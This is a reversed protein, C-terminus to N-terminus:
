RGTDQAPLESQLEQSLKVYLGHFDAGWTVSIFPTRTSTGAPVFPRRVDNNRRCEEKM